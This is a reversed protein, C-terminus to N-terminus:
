DKAPALGLDQVTKMLDQHDLQFVIRLLDGRRHLIYTAATKVVPQGPATEFRMSWCARVMIYNEDLLTEELSQVKSSTLGVMRFFEQRRPLAGRLDERRIVQVGRPGAFIFRDSYLSSILDPNPAAIGREYDEFLKGAIESIQGM